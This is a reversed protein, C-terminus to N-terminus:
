GITIVSATMDTNAMAVIGANEFGSSGCHTQASHPLAHPLPCAEVQEDLYPHRKQTDKKFIPEVNRITRRVGLKWAIAM